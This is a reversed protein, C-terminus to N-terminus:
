YIMHCRASQGIKNQLGVCFVQTFVSLPDSMKIEIGWVGVVAGDGM